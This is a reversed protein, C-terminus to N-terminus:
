MKYAIYSWKESSGSTEVVTSKSNPRGLIKLVADEPMGVLIEKRAIAQKLKEDDARKAELEKITDEPIPELDNVLIWGEAKGNTVHAEVLHRDTGIGVLHVPTGASLSDIPSNGDRSF